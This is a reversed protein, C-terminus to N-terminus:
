AMKGQKGMYFVLMGVPGLYVFNMIVVTMCQLVNKERTSAM